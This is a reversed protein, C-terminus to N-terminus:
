ITYWDGNLGTNASSPKETQKKKICYFGSKEFGRNRSCGSLEFWIENGKLKIKTSAVTSEEFERNRSGIKM